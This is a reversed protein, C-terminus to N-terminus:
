LIARDSRSRRYRTRSTSFHDTQRADGSPVIRRLGSWTEALVISNEPSGPQYRVSCHQGIQIQEMPLDARLATVDQACEYNVGAIEYAYLLLLRLSEDPSATEFVDVLMGDVLRGYSVLRLRRDREIEEATPKRRNITWVLTAVCGILALMLAGWQWTQTLIHMVISSGWSEVSLM